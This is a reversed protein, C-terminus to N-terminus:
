EEECENEVSIDLYETVLQFLKAATKANSSFNSEKHIRLFEVKKREVFSDFLKKGEGKTRTASIAIDCKQKNFYAINSEIIEENDGPTCISIKKGAFDFTAYGEYDKNIKYSDAVIRLLDILINLTTSKGIKSKGYLAIIREM